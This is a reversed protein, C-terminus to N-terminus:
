CKNLREALEGGCAAYGAIDTWNDMHTPNQKARAIKLLVMMNAVDVPDFDVGKYAKWLDAIDQFCDEPEGYQDNREQCVCKEAASLITKRTTPEKQHEEQHLIDFVGNWAAKAEVDSRLSIPGRHECDLCYVSHRHENITITTRTKLNTGGCVPCHKLKIEM